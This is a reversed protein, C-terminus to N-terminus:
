LLTVHRPDFFSSTSSELRRTRLDSALVSFVVGVEQGNGFKKVTVRNKFLKGICLFLCLAKNKPICVLSLVTYM